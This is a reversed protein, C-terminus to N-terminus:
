NFRLRVKLHDDLKLGLTKKTGFSVEFEDHRLVYEEFACVISLFCVFACVPLVRLMGRRPPRPTISPQV